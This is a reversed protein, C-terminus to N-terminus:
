PTFKLGIEQSFKMSDIFRLEIFDAREVGDKNKYSGVKVKKSFSICKEENEVILNRHQVRL